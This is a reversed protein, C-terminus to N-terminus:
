KGLLGLIEEAHRRGAGDQSEAAALARRGVVAAAEPHSLYFLARRALQRADAVAEGGGSRELIDRADAFDETSPGYLVPKAWAAPELINQGGLPALSGGCFVVSATGYAAMLEGITDLVVVPAIRVVGSSSLASRRQVPLGRRAAAAMLPTTNALHRPAAVLVAEPLASRIRCFADIVPLIEAGRVSGAVLVPQGEQLGLTDAMRRVAEPRARKTLGDYKANGNVRVRRRDAGLRLIRGADADSIMSFAKLNNLAAAILSSIRRYRRFSRVSIRGNILVAPVNWRGAHVLWNPWLETECVALLDPRIRRFATRIAFPVDVPAFVCTTRRDAFKLAQAQGTETTTSVVLSCDPLRERLVKAVAEAARVEGVSVAHLWIRPRGPPRGPGIGVYRGLRSPLSVARKGTLRCYLLAAAAAPIGAGTTLVRYARYSFNM